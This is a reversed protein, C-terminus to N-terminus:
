ATVLDEELEEDDCPSSATHVMGSHINNIVLAASDGNSVSKLTKGNKWKKWDKFIGVVKRHETTHDNMPIDITDGLSVTENQDTQIDLHIENDDYALAAAGVIIMFKQRM